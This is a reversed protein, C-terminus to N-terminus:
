KVPRLSVIRIHERYLSCGIKTCTVARVRNNIPVYKLPSGCSACVEKLEPLPEYQKIPKAPPPIVPKKVNAQNKIAKPQKATLQAKRKDALADSM